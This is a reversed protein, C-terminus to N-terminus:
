QRGKNNAREFWAAVLRQAEVLSTTQEWGTPHKSSFVCIREPTSPTGWLVFVTHHGSKVMQEFMIRQGKKLPVDPSKAELVLFEGNREVIGDLDSVRIKTGAFCGNLFGWDWLNAVYEDLNQITM